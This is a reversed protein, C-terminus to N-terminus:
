LSYEAYEIHKYPSAAIWMKGASVDMIISAVTGSLNGGPRAKPTRLIADPAGFTDAFAHKFTDIDIKGAAGHFHDAMRQDRYLSEPCRLLGIDTVKSRAIPCKFHNAHVLIGNEPQIWFRENPTTELNVIAGPHGSIILNHSFSTETNLVVDLAGGLNKSLLLRRRIFPNAIGLRGGDQECQLGNVTLGIGASNMGHRALQGAEVFTLINPGDDNEIRLVIGADACRPNWDWNQGHLLHGNATASPLAAAATCEDMSNKAAQGTGNLENDRWFIIETRANLAVIAEVPQDSGKAIGQIESWMDADFQEINQAFSRAYTMAESWEIGASKFADRYLDLGAIIRDGTQEGYSVGRESPSGSITIMPFAGDIKQTATM